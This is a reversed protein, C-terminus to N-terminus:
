FGVSNVEPQQQDNEARDQFINLLGQYHVKVRGRSIGTLRSLARQSPFSEEAQLHLAFAEKLKIFDPDTSETQIAPQSVPRHGNLAELYRRVALKVAATQSTVAEGNVKMQALLLVPLDAEAGEWRINTFRNKATM